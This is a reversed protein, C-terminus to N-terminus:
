GQRVFITDNVVSPRGFWSPGFWPFLEGKIILYLSPFM